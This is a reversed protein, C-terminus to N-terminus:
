RVRALDLLAVGVAAVINGRGRWPLIEAVPQPETLVEPLVAEFGETERDQDNGRLWTVQSGTHNEPTAM